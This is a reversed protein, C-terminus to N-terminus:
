DGSSGSRSHPLRKGIQEADLKVILEQVLEIMRQPDQEEQVKKAVERWPQQSSRGEERTEISTGEEKGIAKEPLEKAIRKVTEVPIQEFHTKWAKM